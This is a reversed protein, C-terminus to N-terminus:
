FPYLNSLVGTVPEGPDRLSYPQQQANISFASGLLLHDSPSIAATSWSGHVQGVGGVNQGNSGVVKVNFRDLPRVAPGATVLGLSNFASGHCPCVYNDGGKSYEVPCGLHSCRDWIAILQGDNNRVWARADPGDAQGTVAIGTTQQAPFNSVPGIDVWETSPSKVSDSVAFGVIPVLIAASLVAGGAIAVGSLFRTRTIFDPDDDHSHEQVPDIARPGVYQGGPTGNPAGNGQSEAV